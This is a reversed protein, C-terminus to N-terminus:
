AMLTSPNLTNHPKKAKSPPRLDLAHFWSCRFPMSYRLQKSSFTRGALINLLMPWRLPPDVIHTFHTM